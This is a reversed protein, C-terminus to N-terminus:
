YKVVKSAYLVNGNNDYIKVIYIGNSLPEIQYPITTTGPTLVVNKEAIQKGTYDIFSIIVSQASSNNFSLLINDHAPNPAIQCDFDKKSQVFTKTPDMVVTYVENTIVPPNFDFYINAKAPIISGMTTTNKLRIKFSFLGHSEAENSFSDPLMINNYIVKLVYPKNIDNTNIIQIQYNPHSSLLVELYAPDLNASLSDTLYINIAPANGTNQFRITYTLDVGQQVQQSGVISKDVAIDNPDYSSVVPMAISYFNNTTDYDTGNLIAEFDFHVTDGIQASQSVLSQFNFSQHAGSALNYNWTIQNGNVTGTGANSISLNNSLNANLNGTAANTGINRLLVWGNAHYGAQSNYNNAYWVEIDDFSFAPTFIMDLDFNQGSSGDTSITTTAPPNYNTYTNVVDYVYAINTDIFDYFNTFYDTNPYIYSITSTPIIERRIPHPLYAEATSDNDLDLFVRGHVLPSQYTLCQPAATACLPPNLIMNGYYTNVVMNPPHNPICGHGGYYSVFNSKLSLLGQPLTPFCIPNTHGVFLYKLSDPLPGAIQLTDLWSQNSFNLDLKELGTPLVPVYNFNGGSNIILTKITNPLLSLAAYNYIDLYELKLYKLNPPIYNNLLHVGGQLDLTDLLPFNAINIIYNGEWNSEGYYKFYRLNSNSTTFPYPPNAFITWGTWDEVILREVSSPLVDSAVTGFHGLAWSMTLDKLTTPSPGFEYFLNRMILKELNSPLNAITVHLSELYISKVSNPLVLDIYGSLDASGFGTLKFHELNPPFYNIPVSYYGFAYFHCETLALSNLLHIKLSTVSTLLELGQFNMLCGGIVLNLSDLTFADPLLNQTNLDICTPCAQYICQALATDPVDQAKCNKQIFFSLFFIFFLLSKKM